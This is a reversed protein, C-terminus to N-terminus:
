WGRGSYYWAVKLKASITGFSFSARELRGLSKRRASIAELCFFEIEALLSDTTYIKTALIPEPNSAWSKAAFPALQKKEKLKLSLRSFSQAWTLKLSKSKRLFANIPWFKPVRLLIHDNNSLSQCIQIPPWEKRRSCSFAVNVSSNQPVITSTSM